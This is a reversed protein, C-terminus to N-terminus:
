EVGDAYDTVLGLAKAFREDEKFNRWDPHVRNFLPVDSRELTKGTREDKKVLPAAMYDGLRFRFYTPYMVFPIDGVPGDQNKALIAYVPRIHKAMYANTEQNESFSTLQKPAFAAWAEMVKPEKWLILVTKANEEMAGSEKLDILTPKRQNKVSDRSIQSLVFIPIRLELALKKIECSILDIRQKPDMRYSGKCTMVQIYDLMAYKWGKKRVGVTVWAKFEDLDHIESFEIPWKRVVDLCRHWTEVQERKLIGMMAKPFSIGSMESVNRALVMDPTMDISNFGGPVNLAECWFRILNIAMTTKGDGPRAAIYHAGPIASGYLNNMHRWPMELGPSYRVKGHGKVMVVDFATDVREGIKMALQDLSNKVGGKTAEDLLDQLKGAMRTIADQAGHGVSASFERGISRAMDAVRRERVLDAYYEAHGTIPTSEICSEMLSVDPETVQPEGKPVDGNTQRDWLKRWMELVTIMDAPKGSEVVAKVSVFISRIGSHRFWSACAGKNLAMPYWVKPDQLICGMLGIENEVDIKSKESMTLNRRTGADAYGHTM